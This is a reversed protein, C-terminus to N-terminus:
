EKEKRSDMIEFVINSTEKSCLRTIESWIFAEEEISPDCSSIKNQVETFSFEILTKLENKTM